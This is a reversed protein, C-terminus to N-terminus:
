SHKDDTKIGHNRKRKDKAKVVARQRESSSEKWHWWVNSLQTVVTCSLGFSAMPTWDLYSVLIVAGGISCAVLILLHIIRNADLNVRM